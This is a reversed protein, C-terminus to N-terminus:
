GNSLSFIENAPLECDGGVFIAAVKQEQLVNYYSFNLNSYGMFVKKDNVVQSPHILQHMHLYSEAFPNINRLLTDLKEM